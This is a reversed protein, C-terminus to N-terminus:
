IGGKLVRPISIKEYKSIFLSLIVITNILVILSAFVIYLLYFNNFLLKGVLAIMVGITFAGILLRFVGKYRKLLTKGFVKDLAIEVARSDFDMKLIASLSINFLIIMMSSIIINIILVLIKEAQKKIYMDKINNKYYVENQYGISKIFNKFDYANNFKVLSNFVYGSLEKSPLVSHTDFIIIPNKKYNDALNIMNIDYVLLEYSNNITITEFIGDDVNLLYNVEDSSKKDYIGKEKLENDSYRSIIYYRNKKLEDVNIGLNEIEKKAYKNLYVISQDGNLISSSIGGNNSFDFSLYIQYKDINENYFKVAYEEDTEINTNETYEKFFFFVNEYDYFNEWNDKQNITLIADYISKFNFTLTFILTISIVSLVFFSLIKYGLTYYSKVFTKKVDLNYLILYVSNTSLTILMLVIVSILIFKYSETIIMGILIGIIAGCLITLSNKIILPRIVNKKDTGNLYRILVEKKLNSVEFITYILIILFIFVWAAAIMFTADNPYSNEEPKSMGYKDITISRLKDVNEKTGFIYFYKEDTNVIDSFPKFVIEREGNVLSIFKSDDKKVLIREKFFEKNEDVSYVTYTASNKSTIVSSIVYIKLDFDKSYKELDQVYEQKLDVNKIDTVYKFDSEFVKGDIYYIYSDGIITFVIFFLFSFFTLKKKNVM